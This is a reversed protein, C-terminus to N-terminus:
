SPLLERGVIRLRDDPGAKRKWDYAVFPNIFLGSREKELDIVMAINVAPILRTNSRSLTLARVANNYRNSWDIWTIRFDVLELIFM